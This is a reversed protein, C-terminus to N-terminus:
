HGSALGSVNIFYSSSVPYATIGILVGKVIPYNLQVNVTFNGTLELMIDAFYFGPIKQKLDEVTQGTNIMYRHSVNQGLDQLLNPLMAQFILVVLRKYYDRTTTDSCLVSVQHIKRSLCGQTWIQNQALIPEPIQQGIGISEQEELKDTVTILPLSPFGNLPMDQMVTARKIHNPLTQNDIGAQLCRVIIATLGDDTYQLNGTPTIPGINITGSSDVFNWYYTSGSLLATPLGDGVDVFLACPNGSYINLYTGSSGTSSRSIAMQASAGTAYGGIVFSVVGGFPALSASVSSPM